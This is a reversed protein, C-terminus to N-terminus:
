RYTCSGRVWKAKNKNKLKQILCVKYFLNSTVRFM